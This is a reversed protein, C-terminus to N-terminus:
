PFLKTFQEKIRKEASELTAIANQFFETILFAAIKQESIQPLGVTIRDAQFDRIHAQQMFEDLEGLRDFFDKEIQKNDRTDPFGEHAAIGWSMSAPLGCHSCVGFYYQSQPAACRNCRAM